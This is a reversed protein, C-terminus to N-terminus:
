KAQEKLWKLQQGIRMNKMPRNVLIGCAILKPVLFEAYRQGALVIVCDGPNLFVTLERFVQAAWERRASIPMKNLSINYSEILKNPNLLGYKASLIMWDDANCEAYHFSKLFLNSVYLEKAPHMGDQKKSACSVLCITKM